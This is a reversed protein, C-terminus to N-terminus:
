KCNNFFTINYSILVFCLLCILTLLVRFASAVFLHFISIMFFLSFSFGYHFTVYSLENLRLRSMCLLRSFTKETLCNIYILLLLIIFYFFYFFFVFTLLSGGEGRTKELSEREIETSRRDSRKKKWPELARHM